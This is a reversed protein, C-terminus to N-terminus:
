TSTCPAAPPSPVTPTAPLGGLRGDGPLASVAPLQQLPGQLPEEAPGAPVPQRPAPRGRAPFGPVASPLLRICVWARGADSGCGVWSGPQAIPAVPIGPSCPRPEMALLPGGAAAGAGMGDEGRGARAAQPPPFLGGPRVEQKLFRRIIEEGMEKRKEDPSLEYDAQSARPSSPAASLPVPCPEARHGGGLGRSGWILCTQGPRPALSGDAGVGRAAAQM